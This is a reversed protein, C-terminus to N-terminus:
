TPHTMMLDPQSAVPAHATPRGARFLRRQAPKGALRSRAPPARRHHHREHDARRRPSQRGSRGRGRRVALDGHNASWKAVPLGDRRSRFRGRRVGGKGFGDNIWGGPYALVTDVPVTDDLPLGAARSQYIQFASLDDGGTSDLYTGGSWNLTARETRSAAAVLSASYDRTPEDVAVTGVEAWVNRGLAGAPTPVHCRCTTGRGSLDGISTFRFCAGRWARPRGPSSCTLGMPWLASM